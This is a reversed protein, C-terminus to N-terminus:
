SIAMSIEHCLYRKMKGKVKSIFGLGIASMRGWVM